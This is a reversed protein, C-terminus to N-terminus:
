FTLWFGLNNGHNRTDVFLSLFPNNSEVVVRLGDRLSKITEHLLGLVINDEFVQELINADEGM